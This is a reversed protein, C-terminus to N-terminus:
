QLASVRAMVALNSEARLCNVQNAAAKEKVPAAVGTDGRGTVHGRGAKVDDVVDPVTTDQAVIIGHRCCEVGVGSRDEGHEEEDDDHEQADM